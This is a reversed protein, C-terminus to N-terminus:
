PKITNAFVQIGIARDLGFDGTIGEKDIVIRYIYNDKKGRLEITDESQKTIKAEPLLNQYASLANEITGVRLLDANAIAPEKEPDYGIRWDGDDEAGALIPPYIFIGEVAISQLSSQPLLLSMFGDPINKPLIELLWGPKTLDPQIYEIKTPIYATKIGTEQKYNENDSILDDPLQKSWEVLPAVQNQQIGQKLFITLIANPEQPCRITKDADEKCRGHILAAAELQGKNNMLLAARNIGRTELARSSIIHRGDPLQINKNDRKSTLTNLLQFVASTNITTYSGTQYGMLDVLAEQIKIDKALIGTSTRQPGSMLIIQNNSTIVKDALAITSQGYLLCFFSVLISVTTLTKIKM